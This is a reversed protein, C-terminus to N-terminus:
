GHAASQSEAEIKAVMADFERRIIEETDPDWIFKQFPGALPFADGIKMGNRTLQFGAATPVYQPLFQKFMLYRAGASFYLLGAPGTTVTLNLYAAEYLAMRFNVDISALPFDDFGALPEPMPTYISDTDRVVVVYYQEADLSKLFKGWAAMDNNRDPQFAYERLTLVLLKRGRQGAELFRAVFQKAKDPAALVRPEFGQRQDDYCYKMIHEDTPNAASYGKPFIQAAAAAITDAEDRSALQTVGRTAPVLRFVASLIYYQRWAINAAGGLLELDGPRGGTIVSPVIVFHLYPLGRRRREADARAAFIVCDYTSPNMALDYIATLFEPKSPTSGLEDYPVFRDQAQFYWWIRRGDVCLAQLGQLIPTLFSSAIVIDAETWPALEAASMVAQGSFEGGGQTTAFRAPIFSAGRAKLLHEAASGTGYVVVPRGGEGPETV